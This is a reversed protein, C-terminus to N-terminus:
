GDTVLVVRVDGPGHVGTVLVGEIDATKSPGTILSLAAPLEPRGSLDDFYDCLDPLVQSAAVVAVHVPPILSSGRAITPQSECVLSGHEAIAAAVGTVAAGASFLVDDDAASSTAVGDADLRKRLLSARTADLFGDYAAPVAALRVAHKELLGSVVDLWDTRTAAHVSAGAATAARAFRAVVDEDRAVERAVTEPDDPLPTATPVGRLRRKHSDLARTLAARRAANDAVSLRSQEDPTMM